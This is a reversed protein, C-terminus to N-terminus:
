KMLRKTILVLNMIARISPTQYQYCVKVMQLHMTISERQQYWWQLDM